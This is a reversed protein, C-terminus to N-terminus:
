DGLDDEGSDHDLKRSHFGAVKAVAIREEPEARCWPAAALGKVLYRITSRHVLCGSMRWGVINMGRKPVSDLVIRVDLKHYWGVFRRSKSVLNGRVLALQDTM